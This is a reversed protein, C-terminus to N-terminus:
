RGETCYNFYQHFHLLTESVNAMCTSLKFVRASAHLHGQTQIRM